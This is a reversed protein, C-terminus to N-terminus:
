NIIEWGIVSVDSAQLATADAAQWANIVFSTGNVITGVSIKGLAAAGTAGVSQRWVQILSNTTVATTSVTATGGVLTVSGISNAGATTTTAVSTRVMKNGAATLVLNGNTATIAGLTATLTTSATLSGTVATNGTANGIAVIGTGGTGITTTAAGSANISATGVQTLAALTSTGASVTFGNGATLSTTTALSGPAIVASRLSLTLTHSAGSTILQNAAGAVIVAPNPTATGSNDGTLGSFTGASTGGLLQWNAVGGPKAMLMYANINTTDVAITGIGNAVAATSPAGTVAIVNPPNVVQGGGYYPTVQPSITPM